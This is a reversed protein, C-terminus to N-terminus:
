FRQFLQLSLFFSRATALIRPADVVGSGIVMHGDDSQGNNNKYGIVM